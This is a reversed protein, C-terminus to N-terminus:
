DNGDPVGSERGGNGTRWVRLRGGRVDGAETSRAGKATLRGARARKGRVNAKEAKPRWGRRKVAADKTQPYFKCFLVRCLRRCHGKHRVDKVGITRDLM